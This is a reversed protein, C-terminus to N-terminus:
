KCILLQLVPLLQGNFGALGFRLYLFRGYLIHGNGKIYTILVKLGFDFQEVEILDAVLILNSLDIFLINIM